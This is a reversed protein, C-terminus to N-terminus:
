AANTAEKKLKKGMKKERAIRDLFFTNIGDIISQQNVHGYIFARNITTPNVGLIETLEKVDQKRRNLKWSELLEDPINQPFHESAPKGTKELKNM